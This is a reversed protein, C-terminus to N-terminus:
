IFKEKFEIIGQALSDINAMTTNVGFSIRITSEAEERTLGDAMLVRYNSDHECASHGASIYIEKSSLYQVLADANIGQLTIANIAWTKKQANSRVVNAIIGCKKLNKLLHNALKEYYKNNEKPYLNHFRLADVMHVINNIAPTGVNMNYEDLECIYYHEVFRDSFWIFGTGGLGGYKHASSVICDCWEELNSPIETHGFSATTDMLFYGGDARIKRGLAELDYVEGTINNTHIHAYLGNDCNSNMMDEITGHYVSLSHVCDHDHVSDMFIMSDTTVYLRYILESATGGFAVVGSKIGLISKIDERCKELREHALVGLGHASNPNAYYLNSNFHYLNYDTSAYDLYVM